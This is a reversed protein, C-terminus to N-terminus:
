SSIQLRRGSKFRTKCGQDACKRRDKRPLSKASENRFRRGKAKRPIRPIRATVSRCPCFLSLSGREDAIYYKPWPCGRVTGLRKRIRVVARISRACGVVSFTSVKGFVSVLVPAGAM